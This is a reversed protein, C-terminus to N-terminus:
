KYRRAEVRFVNPPPVGKGEKQDYAMHSLLIAIRNALAELDAEYLLTDAQWYLDKTQVDIQIM